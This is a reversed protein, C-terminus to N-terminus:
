LREFPSFSLPFQLRPDGLSPPGAMMSSRILLFTVGFRVSLMPSPGIMMV